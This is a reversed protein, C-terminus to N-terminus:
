EGKGEEIGADSSTTDDTDEYAPVRLGRSEAITLLDTVAECLGRVVLRLEDPSPEVQDAIVSHALDRVVTATEIQQTELDDALRSLFTETGDTVLHARKGEAGRFPLLRLHSRSTSSM